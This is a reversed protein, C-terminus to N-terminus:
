QPVSTSPKADTVHADTELLAYGRRRGKLLNQVSLVSLAVIALPFYSRFASPDDIVNAITIFTFFIAGAVSLGIRWQTQTPRRALNRDRQDKFMQLNNRREEETIVM